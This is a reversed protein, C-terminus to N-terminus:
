TVSVDPHGVDTNMAVVPGWVVPYLEDDVDIKGIRQKDDDVDRKEVYCRSYRM